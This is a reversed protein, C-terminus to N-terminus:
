KAKKVDKSEAKRKGTKILLGNEFVLLLFCGIVTISSLILCLHFIKQPVFELALSIDFHGNPKKQCMNNNDCLDMIRIKWGNAYGNALFHDNNLVSKNGTSLSWGSNYSQNLILTTDKALNHIQIKYRTPNIKEFQIDDIQSNQKNSDDFDDTGTDEDMRESLSSSKNLCGSLLKTTKLDSELYIMPYLYKDKLRFIALEGYKKELVLGSQTSIRNAIDNSYLVAGNDNNREVVYKDLIDSRVIVRGINRTGALMRFCYGDQVLYNILDINTKEVGSEEYTTRNAFVPNNLFNASLPDQMDYTDNSWNFKQMWSLVPAILVRSGPANANLYTMAQFYYQPFVTPKLYDVLYFYPILRSLFIFLSLIIIIRVKRGILDSLKILSYASLIPILFLILWDFKFFDRFLTFGPLTDWLFMFGGFPGKPGMAFYFMAMFIVWLSFVARKVNHMTELPLFFLSSYVFALIIYSNIVLFLSVEKRFWDYQTELSLISNLSIKNYHTNIFELIVDTNSNSSTYSSLIGTRSVVDRLSPLIWYSNSLIILGFFILLPRVTMDSIHRGNDSSVVKYVFWFLVCFLSVLITTHFMIPCFFFALVSVLCDRLRNRKLYKIFYLITIGSFMLAWIVPNNKVFYGRVIENSLIYTSTIIVIYLNVGGKKCCEDLFESTLKFSVMYLCLALVFLSIPSSISVQFINFFSEFVTTPLMPLTSHFGGNYDENWSYISKSIQSLANLGHPTDSNVILGNAGYNYALIFLVIIAIVIFSRIIRSKMQSYQKLPSLLLCKV